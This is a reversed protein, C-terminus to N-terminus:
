RIVRGGWREARAGAFGKHHCGLEIALRDDILQYRVMM